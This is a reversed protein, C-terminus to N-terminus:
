LNKLIKRVAPLHRRSVELVDDIDRFTVKHGDSDSRMGGLRALSVLALELGDPFQVPVDKLSHVALDARGDLLGAELEKVFLGKGGVKALPADLLKDGRTKMTLLSVNLHPHLAELRAQVHEAQWLALPSGRTAIRLENRSDTM